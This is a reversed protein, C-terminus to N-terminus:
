LFRPLPQPLSSVVPMAWWAYVVRSPGHNTGLPGLSTVIPTSPRRVFASSRAAFAPATGRPRGMQSVSNPMWDKGSSM